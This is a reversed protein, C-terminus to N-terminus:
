WFIPRAIFNPEAFRCLGSQYYREAIDAATAKLDARIFVAYFHEWGPDPTVQAAYQNNLSDVSTQPVEPLFAVNIMDTMYMPTDQRGLAVPSVISTPTAERLQDQLYCINAGSEVGFVWLRYDIFWPTYDDRLGPQNLAFSIASDPAISDAFYVTVISDLYPYEVISGDLRHIHGSSPCVAQPEVGKSDCAILLAAVASALGIARLIIKM